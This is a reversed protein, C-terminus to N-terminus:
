ADESEQEEFEELSDPDSFLQSEARYAHGFVQREHASHTDVLFGEPMFHLAHVVPYRDGRKGRFDDDPYPQESVHVMLVRKSELKGYKIALQVLSAVLLSGTLIIQCFGKSAQDIMNEVIRKTTEEPRVIPFYHNGGEYVIEPYSGRDEFHGFLALRVPMESDNVVLIVHFLSTKSVEGLADLLKRTEETGVAAPKGTFDPNLWPYEELLLAPSKAM